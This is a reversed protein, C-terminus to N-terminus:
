LKTYMGTIRTFIDQLMDCYVGSIVTERSIKEDSFTGTKSNFRPARYNFFRMTYTDDDNLTIWLRNVRNRNKTLSMRLTNGDSIFNNSGTMAIFRSGGMQSLITNAVTM